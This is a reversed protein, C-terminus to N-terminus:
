SGDDGGGEELELRPRGDWWESFEQRFRAVLLRNRLVARYRWLVLGYVGVIVLGPNVTAPSVPGRLAEQSGSHVHVDVLGM